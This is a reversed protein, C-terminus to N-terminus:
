HDNGYQNELQRCEGLVVQWYAIAFGRVQNTQIFNRVQLNTIWRKNQSFDDRFQRVQDTDFSGSRKVLFRGQSNNAGAPNVGQDQIKLIRFFNGVM